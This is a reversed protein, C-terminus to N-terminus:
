YSRYWSLTNEGKIEGRAGLSTRRSSWSFGSEARCTRPWTGPLVCRNTRAEERRDRAWGDCGVGEGRVTLDLKFNVRELRQPGSDRAVQRTILEQSPTSPDLQRGPRELQVGPRAAALSLASLPDRDPAPGLWPPLPQPQRLRLHARLGLYPPLAM